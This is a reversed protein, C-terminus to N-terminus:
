CLPCPGYTGAPPYVEWAGDQRMREIERLSMGSEILSNSFLWLQARDRPSIEVTSEIYGRM